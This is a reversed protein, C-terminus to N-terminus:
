IRFRGDANAVSGLGLDPLVVQVGPLTENAAGDNAVGALTGTDQAAATTPLILLFIAFTCLLRLTHNM